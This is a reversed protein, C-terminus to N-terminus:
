LDRQDTRTLYGNAVLIDEYGDNNLDVFNSGWAWRGMMVAAQQSVDRFDGRGTNQFLSNGRAMYQFKRRVEESENAKFQDQFVIRNGAASFMNSIYLDMWGDRNFDGWSVSMGFSQDEVGAEPAVDIFRGGDNRFLNNRGYDNAVYLDLDGDNDYDEWSSAFSRRTAEAELGTDANVDRLRWAGDNRLLVNRGGNRADHFPVPAALIQRRRAKALYVCAYIDLDGDADYDAASLSYADRAAAITSRLSFTGNGGNEALVLAAVTSVLLDQDGDNDLDVLLASHSPEHWDVGAEASRDTATGDPNQVYLRNPLPSIQCVYVDDLGDGNVDGIAFGQMGDTDVRLVRNDWYDLGFALQQRFSANSGLVAETCDSFLTGRASRVIIEEYDEVDISALLPLDDPAPLLWRCRWTAHVERSGTETRQFISLFQQTVLSQAQSEIRFIKFEARDGPGREMVLGAVARVLGEVGRYRQASPSSSTPRLVRLAPDRFVERLEAPRLADTSFDDAVLQDMQGAPPAGVLLQAIRVLQKQAVAQVVETHWGDRAPDDQLAAAVGARREDGAVLTGMGLSAVVAFLM